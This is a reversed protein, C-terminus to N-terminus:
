GVAKSVKEQQQVSFNLSQQSNEKEYHQPLSSESSFNISNSYYENGHTDQQFKTKQKELQQPLFKTEIVTYSNENAELKRYLGNDKHLNSSFKSITSFNSLVVNSKTEGVMFSQQAEDISDYISLIYEIFVCAYIRSLLTVYKADSVRYSIFIQKVGNMIEKKLSGPFM